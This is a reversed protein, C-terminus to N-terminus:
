LEVTKQTEKEVHEDLKRRRFRNNRGMSVGDQIL